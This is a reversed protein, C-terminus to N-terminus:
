LGAVTFTIEIDTWEGYSSLDLPLPRGYIEEVSEPDDLGSVYLYAGVDGYGTEVIPKGSVPIEQGDIKLSDITIDIDPQFEQDNYDLISYMSIGLVTFGSPKEDNLSRYRDTDATVSVTYTGDGDIDAVVADGALTEYPDGSYMAEIDEDIVVVYAQGELAEVGTDDGSLFQNLDDDDWDIDEDDWDTDEDSWDIDEDDWDDLIDGYDNYSDFISSAAEEGIEKAYESSLGLKELLEAVFRSCDEHTVYDEISIDDAEPDIRFAGSKDPIEPSAGESASVALRVAGYSKGEIDLDASVAQQEEAGEFRVAIPDTDPINFIVDANFTGNKEDVIEFDNFDISITEDDATIDVAGTYKGDDESATLVANFSDSGFNWFMKGRVESGDKGIICTLDYDNMEAQLGRIVGNADIYTNLTLVDDTVYDHEAIEELAEDLESDYEEATIIGLKDTLIGKIIDDNKLENVFSKTIQVAKADDITVTVISYGVTIDDITVDASKTLKVDDVSSNWLDTYRKVEAEVEDPTIVSEPDEMFRKYGDILSNEDTVSELLEGTEMLVWRETLEPIRIFEDLTDYDVAMDVTMLREGNYEAFMSGSFDTKKSDVDIGIAATDLKEIINIVDEAGEEDSYIDRDEGFLEDLLWERAEDNATYTFSVTGSSGAELREISKKYNESVSKACAESNESNVWAYYSEPSSIRLKVQNKVFPSLNYAAIGGGAAAAVVVASVAAATRGARRKRTVNEVGSVSDYSDPIDDGNFRDFNDMNDSM